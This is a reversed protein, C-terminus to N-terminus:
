HVVAVLPRRRRLLGTKHPGATITSPPPPASGIGYTWETVTLFPDDGLYTLAGILMNPHLTLAALAAPFPAAFVLSGFDSTIGTASISVHFTFPGSSPMAPVAIPGGDQVDSGAVATLEVAPGIYGVGPVVPGNSHPGWVSAFAGGDMADNLVGMTFANLNEIDAVSFTMDCVAGTARADRWNVGTDGGAVELVGGIVNFTGPPIVGEVGGFLTYTSDAFYDHSFNDVWM